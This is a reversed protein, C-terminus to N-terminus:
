RYMGLTYTRELWCYELALDTTAKWQAGADCRSM